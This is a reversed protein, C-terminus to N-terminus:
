RLKEAVERNTVYSIDGKGAIKECFRELEDWAGDWKDLEFSHGWLYYLADEEGEYAILEDALKYMAEFHTPHFYCSPQWEMLREPLALTHHSYLARAYFVDTHETILRITEENYFPGGPYAMGVIKYGVLEGLAKADDGVQRIVEEPSCKLLNPHTLTHAAVEHGAYLERVESADIEDHCVLIGEHTIDHHNSFLGSNLNFTCKLGYRNLIEIFRRDQVTGDDFSMTFYKM